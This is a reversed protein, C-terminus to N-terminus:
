RKTGAPFYAGRYNFALGIGWGIAPWQFWWPGPTLLNILLLATMVIIYSWLHKHFATKRHGRRAAHAAQQQAAAAEERVAAEITEADLGLERAMDMLDQHSILDDHNKKLARTFIRNVDDSSYRRSSSRVM